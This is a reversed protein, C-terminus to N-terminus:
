RRNCILFFILFTKDRGMGCGRTVREMGGLEDGPREEALM